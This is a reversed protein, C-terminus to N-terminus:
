YSFIPMHHLRFFTRDFQFYYSVQKLATALLRGNIKMLGNRGFKYRFHRAFTTNLNAQFYHVGFKQYRIPLIMKVDKMQEVRCERLQM